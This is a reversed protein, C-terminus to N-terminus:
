CYPQFDFHVSCVFSFLISILLLTFNFLIFINGKSEGRMWVMQIPVTERIARKKPGRESIIGLWQRPPCPWVKGPEVQLPSPRVKNFVTTSVEQHFCLLVFIYINVRLYADINKLLHHNVKYSSTVDRNLGSHVAELSPPFCPVVQHEAHHHHNTNDLHLWLVPASSPSQKSSHGVFTPIPPSHLVLPM